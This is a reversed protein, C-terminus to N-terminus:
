YLGGNIDLSTGNIYDSNILFNVANIINVPNGLDGNPIGKKIMALMDDPVETIMGINFYGLNLNNITIGKRANEAAISKTMGWLGAKSAAYASTGVIGKQAVISAFNIIRGYGKERMVPLVAKIANFSGILNVRIVRDWQEMDAKHAFANYNNGACNILEIKDEGQCAENVWNEVQRYDSVDLQKLFPLLKTEPTTSHYTGSVKEGKDAYHELLFKGIGRSAGTILKM